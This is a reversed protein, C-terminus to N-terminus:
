VNPKGGNYITKVSSVAGVKSVEFVADAMLRIPEAHTVTLVTFDLERCLDSLVAVFRDQSGYGDLHRAIEDAILIKETEPSLLIAAIQLCLSCVDAVGGGDEDLVDYEEGDIVIFFDCETVDRREVFRILFSRESDQFVTRLAKTVIGSLRSALADQVLQAAKRAISLMEELELQEQQVAQLRREARQLELMKGALIAEHGALKECMEKYIIQSSM